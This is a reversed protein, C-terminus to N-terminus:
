GVSRRRWATISADSAHTNFSRSKSGFLVIEGHQLALCTPATHRESGEEPVIDGFLGVDDAAPGLRAEAHHATIASRRCLDGRVLM